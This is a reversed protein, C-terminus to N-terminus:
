GIGEFKKLAAMTEVWNVFRIARDDIYAVAPLKVNTVLLRSQDNWFGSEPIDTTCEILMEDEIWRAVQRSNRTTHIFVACEAMLFKLNGISGPIIRGYISGDKWGEDYSHIVGDFDVGVTKPM